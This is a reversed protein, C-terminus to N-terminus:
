LLGLLFRFARGSSICFAFLPLPSRVLSFSGFVLFSLFLSVSSRPFSLRLWRSLFLALCIPLFRLYRFSYLSFVSPRRFVGYLSVASCFLSMWTRSDSNVRPRWRRCAHELETVPGIFPADGKRCGAVADSLDRM